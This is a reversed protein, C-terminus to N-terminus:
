RVGMIIEYLSYLGSVGIAYYVISQLMPMNDLLMSVLNYGLEALGWNLAGVATLVMAVQMLIKRNKTRRM